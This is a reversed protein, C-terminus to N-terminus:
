TQFVWVANGRVRVGSNPPANSTSSIPRQWRTRTEISSALTSNATPLLEKRLVLPRVEPWTDERRVLLDPRQQKTKDPPALGPLASSQWSSRPNGTDTSVIRM